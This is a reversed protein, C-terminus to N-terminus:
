PGREARATGESDPGVLVPEVREGEVVSMAKNLVLLTGEPLENEIVVWEQDPVGLAPLSGNLHFMVNVPLTRVIGDEVIAIREAFVARRPVAILMQPDAAVVEGEVFRGPALAQAADANQELEAFVTVTRSTEDDEPAIRALRANWTMTAEGTSFLRVTDGIRLALRASAPVRIPVEIRGLSVVRAVREGPTVSEGLEVDVAQLVGDLPSTITSREQNHKALRLQAEQQAKLAELRQRRPAVKLLEEGAAVEVRRAAILAQRALDVERERAANRRFAEEVRNLDAQAMATDEAALAARDEWADKEVELQALEAEIEAIVKEAIEVQRAFDSDDLRIIVDGRAVRAGPQIHAPREEVIASVESPVNASDMARATGYGRWQRRIPVAEIAMVLVRPAPADHQVSPSEPRSAYLAWFVSAALVLLVLSVAARTVISIIVRPAKSAMSQDVQVRPGPVKRVRLRAPLRLAYAVNHATEVEANM